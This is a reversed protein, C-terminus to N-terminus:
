CIIIEIVTKKIEFTHSNRWWSFSYQVICQVDNMMMMVVILLPYSCKGHLEVGEHYHPSFQSTSFNACVCYLLKNSESLVYFLSDVRYRKM